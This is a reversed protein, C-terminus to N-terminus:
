DQSAPKLYCFSGGTCQAGRTCLRNEQKASQDGELGVGDQGVGVAQDVVSSTGNGQNPQKLGGKHPVNGSLKSSNPRRISPLTKHRKSNERDFTSEKAKTSLTSSRGDHLCTYYM